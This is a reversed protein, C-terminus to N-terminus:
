ELYYDISIVDFYFVRETDDLFPDDPISPPSPARWMLREGELEWDGRRRDLAVQKACSANRQTAIRRQTRWSPISASDLRIKARRETASEPSIVSVPRSYM